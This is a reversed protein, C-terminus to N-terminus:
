WSSTVCDHSASSSPFGCLLALAREISVVNLLSCMVYRVRSSVESFHARLLQLLAENQMVHESPADIRHPLQERM